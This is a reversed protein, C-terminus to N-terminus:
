KLNMIAKAIDGESEKIAAIAKERSVGANKVIIQVDSEKIEVEKPEAPESSSSSGLPRRSVKSPVINWIEQGMNMITVEPKELVIEEDETKVIVEVVDDIENTDIQGLAKQMARPSMGQLNGLDPSGGGRQKKKRRRRRRRGSM